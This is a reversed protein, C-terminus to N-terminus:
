ELEQQQKETNKEDDQQDQDNEEDRNEGKMSDNNRAEIDEASRTWTKKEDYKSKCREKQTKYM